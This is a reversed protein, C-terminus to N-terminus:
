PRPTLAGVGSAWPKIGKPNPIVPEKKEKWEKKWTIFKKRGQAEGECAESVSLGWVNLVPSSPQWYRSQSMKSTKSEGSPFLQTFACSIKREIINNKLVADLNVIIELNFTYNFLYITSHCFSVLSFYFCSAIVLIIQLVFYTLILYM